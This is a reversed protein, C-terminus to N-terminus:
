GKSMDPNDNQPTSTADEFGFEDDMHERLSADYAEAYKFVGSGAPTVAVYADIRKCLEAMEATMIDIDKRRRRLSQIVKEFGDKRALLEDRDTVQGETVDKVAKIDDLTFGMRQGRLIHEMHEKDIPSFVRVGGQRAPTLLGKDEYFRVARPTIEFLDAFEQTGWSQPPSKHPTQPHTM